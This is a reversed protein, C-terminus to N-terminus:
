HILNTFAVKFTNHVRFIEAYNEVFFACVFDM